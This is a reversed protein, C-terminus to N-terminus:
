AKGRHNHWGGEHSLNASAPLAQRGGCESDGMAGVAIEGVGHAQGPQVGGQGVQSVRHGKEQCGQVQPRPRPLGEQDDPSPHQPPLLPPAAGGQGQYSKIPAAQDLGNVIGRTVFDLVKDPDRIGYVDSWPWAELTRLLAPRELAKFNRRKLTKPTPTVRNVKVAAVVPSHDTTSNALVSVTAELDKTVCVHDLVSKHGRVEGDERKHLSHLRYTVGTMLYSMNAEAIANDQSLMLCRRGYRKDCRRATDLNVDGAFVINDVEYAAAQLQDKIRTLAAYELPLNSWERYLGGILFCTGKELDVQIWITQVTPHMLDLRIKTLAAMASRVVVMVRYKDTKLLELHSVPLFTHYGEVNFDGHSSAPIETETIIGVDVENATLLNLLALERGGSLIGEANWTM